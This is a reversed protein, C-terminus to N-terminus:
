RRRRRPRPPRTPSSPGAAGPGERLSWSPACSRWPSRLEHGADAVLRRQQRLTAQLRTLLDNFTRALAAVEDRTGPVALRGAPDRHHLEAAERWLREVPRLAAGALLWAGLGGLLVLVAGGLVLGARVRALAALSPELSSGVMVVWVGEPRRV